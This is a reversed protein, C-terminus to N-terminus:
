LAVVPASTLTEWLPRTGVCLGPRRSARRPSRSHSGHVRAGGHAQGRGRAEESAARGPDGQGQRGGGSVALWM